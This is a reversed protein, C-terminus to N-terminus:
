RAGVFAAALGPTPPTTTLSGTLVPGSRWRLIPPLDAAGQTEWAGTADIWAAVLTAESGELLELELRAGDALHVLTHQGLWVLGLADLAVYSSPCPGLETRQSSALDVAVAQAGDCLIARTRDPSVHVMQAELASGVVQTSAVDRMELHIRQPSVYDDYQEVFLVSGDQSFSVGTRMHRGTLAVERIVGDASALVLQADDVAAVVLTEDPSLAPPSATRTYPIHAVDRLRAGLIALGASTWVVALAGHTSLHLSLAGSLARHALRRGTRTDYRDIVRDTALLAITGDDSLATRTASAALEVHSGDRRAITIPSGGMFTELAADTARRPEPIPVCADGGLYLGHEAIM